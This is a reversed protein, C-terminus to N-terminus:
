SLSAERSSGWVPAHNFRGWGGLALGRRKSPMVEGSSCGRSVRAGLASDVDGRADRDKMSIASLCGEDVLESVPDKTMREMERM